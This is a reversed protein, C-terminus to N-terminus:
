LPGNLEASKTRHEGKLMWKLQKRRERTGSLGALAGDSEPAYIFSRYIDQVSNNISWGSSTPSSVIIGATQLSCFRSFSSWHSPPTRLFVRRVVSTMARPRVERETKLWRLQLGPTLLFSRNWPKMRPNREMKLTTIMTESGALLCTSLDQLHPFVNVMQLHRRIWASMVRHNPVLPHINTQSPTKM